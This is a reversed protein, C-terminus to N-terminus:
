GDDFHRGPRQVVAGGREPTGDADMRGKARKGKQASIAGFPVSPAAERTSSSEGLSTIQRLSPRPHVRVTPPLPSSASARKAERKKM